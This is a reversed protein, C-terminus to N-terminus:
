LLALPTEVNLANNKYKILLRNYERILLETQQEQPLSPPRPQRDPFRKRFATEEKEKQMQKIDHGLM